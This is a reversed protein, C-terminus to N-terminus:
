TAPTPDSDKDPDDLYARVGDKHETSVAHKGKIWRFVTGTDVGIKAAVEELTHHFRKRTEALLAPLDGEDPTNRKKSDRKTHPRKAGNRGRRFLLDDLKPVLERLTMRAVQKTPVGIDLAVVRFIAPWDFAGSANDIGGFHRRPAEGDAPAQTSLDHLDSTKLVLKLRRPMLQYVGDELDEVPTGYLDDTAQLMQTPLDDGTAIVTGDPQLRVFVFLLPGSKKPMVTM